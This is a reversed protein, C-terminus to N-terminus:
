QKKGEIGYGIGIRGEFIKFNTTAADLSVVFCGFHAQLGALGGFGYSSVDSVWYKQTLFSNDTLTVLMSNNSYGGGIKMNIPGYIKFIVGLIASFSFYESKSSYGNKDILNQIYDSDYKNMGDEDGFSDFKFNTMLSLFVGAKRMSGVTFGFAPQSYTNLSANATIFSYRPTRPKTPTAPEEKKPEATKEVYVIQPEPQNQLAEELKRMRELIEEESLKANNVLTLEYGKKPEMDFPFWFETSSLDPHSIKLYSAKYTLYVWVEGVKYECEIFTAADGEFLLERRQKDNINETKVKVVAYPVDNDDTYKEMNINVFGAVEKFSDPKVELQALVNFSVFLLFLIASLKKMKMISNVQLYLLKKHNCLIKSLFLVM